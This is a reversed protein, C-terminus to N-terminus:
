IGLVYVTDPVFKFPTVVGRTTRRAYSSCLVSLADLPAIKTFVAELRVVVFYMSRRSAFGPM